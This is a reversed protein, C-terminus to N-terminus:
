DLAGSIGLRDLDVTAADYNARAVRAQLEAALYRIRADAATEERVNVLFFDSAGSEFRRREAVRMADAQEVEQDALVILEGAITLELLINQIEIAIRDELARRRQNMAELEARARTVKGKAERRQLPVSFNLGVITDTSDRSIGGEAVAGFDRSVELSVDLDPRLKNEALDIKQRAREIGTRLINLEPRRALAEIASAETLDVNTMVDTLSGQPPLREEDPLATDGQGDRYYFSLANAAALFDRRAETQLIKRRTINQRNETLFISARAGRRVQEELGSQRAEAITLLDSYVAVQHGAAVWRWYASLAKHQVGVKTLLVDLSAQQAALSTDRLNFRREDIDRDRLLSFLVGVKLEGGTNTFNIDEYIPFEGESLRYGGYVTAGLPRLNQRAQADIISGDWFGTRRSFGDVSFVLDFAGEATRADGLAARREALSRLIDPFHIASARLVEQATLARDEAKTNVCTFIAAAFAASTVLIRFTM